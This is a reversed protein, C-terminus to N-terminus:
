KESSFGLENSINQCTQLLEQALQPMRKRTITITWGSISLAGALCGAHDYIPSGICRIGIENEEDDIAFGQRKVRILHEKFKKQDTITNKTIPQFDLNNLIQSLEAEPYHALLSKGVATCYLRGRQGVMSRMRMAQTNDVKDIYIFENGDLIALHTTENTISTLQQLFPHAIQRLQVKELVQSSIGAIKLTLQYKSNQPHQRVYGLEKLTNLIRFVSAANIHIERAMTRLSVWDDSDAMFEIVNFLRSITNSM